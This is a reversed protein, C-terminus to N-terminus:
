KSMGVLSLLPRWGSIWGVASILSAKDEDTATGRREWEFSRSYLVIHHRLQHIRKEHIELRDVDGRGIDEMLHPRCRQRSGNGQCAGCVTEEWFPRGMEALRRMEKLDRGRDMLEKRATGKTHPGLNMNCMMCPGKGQFKRLLQRHKLPGRTKFAAASRDLLDEYLIAPGMMFGHRLSAEVQIAIWAHRECLGWSNHLSRRVDGNMISGQIYYWLYHIEGNSPPMTLDHEPAIVGDNDTQLKQDLTMTQVLVTQHIM